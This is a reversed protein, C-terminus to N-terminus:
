LKRRLADTLGTNQAAFDFNRPGAAARAHGTRCLGPARRRGGGPRATLQGNAALQDVCLPLLRELAGKVYVVQEGDPAHATAM